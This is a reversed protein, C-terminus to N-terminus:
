PVVATLFARGHFQGTQNRTCATWFLPFHLEGGTSSQIDGVPYPEDLKIDRPSCTSFDNIGPYILVGNGADVGGQSTKEARVYLYAMRSATQDDPSSSVRFGVRSELVKHTNTYMTGFNLVSPTVSLSLVRPPVKEESGEWRGYWYHTPTFKGIYVLPTYLIENGEVPVTRHYEYKVSLTWYNESSLDQGKCAYFEHNAESFTQESFRVSCVKGSDSTAVFDLTMGYKSYDALYNLSIYIRWGTVSSGNYVNGYWTAPDFRESIVGSEHPTEGAQAILPPFYGRIPSAALAKNLPLFFFLALIINMYINM